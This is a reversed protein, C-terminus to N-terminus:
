WDIEYIYVLGMLWIGEGEGEANVRGRRCTSGLREMGTKYDDKM